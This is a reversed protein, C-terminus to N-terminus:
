RIIGLEKLHRLHRLYEAHTDLNTHVFFEYGLLPISSLLILYVLIQRSEKTLELRGIRMGAYLALPLSLGSFLDWDEPYGRDAQWTLTYILYGLSALSLFIELPSRDRSTKCSLLVAVALVSPASLYFMEQLVNLFHHVSLIKTWGVFMAGDLGVNMESWFHQGMEQVSGNYYAVCIGGWIAIQLALLIIVTLSATRLGRRKWVRVILYVIGPFLWGASLHIPLLFGYVFGVWYISKGLILHRATLYLLLAIGALFVPYVEIHGFWLLIFGGSFLAFLIPPYPTNNDGSWLRVTRFVMWMAPVGLVCSLLALSGEASLNTWRTLASGVLRHMLITLPERLQSYWIDQSIFEIIQFGDRSIHVSRFTWCIVPFLLILTYLIWRGHLLLHIKRCLDLMKRVTLPHVFLPYLAVAVTRASYPITFTFRTVWISPFESGFVFVALFGFGGSATLITSWGEFNRDGYWAVLVIIWAAMLGFQSIRSLPIKNPQVLPGLETATPPSIDILQIATLLILLLLGFRGSLHPLPSRATESAPSSSNM